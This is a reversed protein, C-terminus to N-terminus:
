DHEFKYLKGFQRALFAEIVHSQCLRKKGWELIPLAGFPTDLVVLSM